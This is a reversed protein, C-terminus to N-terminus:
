PPLSYASKLSYSLGTVLSLHMELSVDYLVPFYLPALWSSSFGVGARAGQWLEAVASILHSALWEKNRVDGPLLEVASLQWSFLYAYYKCHIAEILHKLRNQKKTANKALDDTATKYNNEM